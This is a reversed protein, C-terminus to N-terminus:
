KRIHDNTSPLAFTKIVKKLHSLESREREPLVASEQSDTAVHLNNFVKYVNPITSHVDELQQLREPHPKVLCASFFQFNQNGRM